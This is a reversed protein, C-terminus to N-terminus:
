MGSDEEGNYFGPFCPTHGTLTCGATSTCLSLRPHRNEECVSVPSTEKCFISFTDDKRPLLQHQTIQNLGRGHSSFVHLGWFAHLPNLNLHTLLHLSLEVDDWSDAGVADEALIAREETVFASESRYDERVKGRFRDSEM